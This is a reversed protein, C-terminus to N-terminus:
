KTKVWQYILESKKLVEEISPRIGYVASPYVGLIECAIRVCEIRIRQLELSEDERM